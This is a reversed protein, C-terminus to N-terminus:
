QVVPAFLGDPVPGLPIDDAFSQRDCNRFDHLAVVIKDNGSVDISIKIFAAQRVREDQGEIERRM